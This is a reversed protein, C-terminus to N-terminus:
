AVLTSATTAEYKFSPPIQQKTKYYRALRHIRSEILILRFKSDKDKRNTELHKRVAVAKKVLQFLDEPIKPSLGQSKLIRLIKNGTVFRVQPIGHSDRLTVGIQSPTLGKRALKCIHEVVDDPTTKLWSPPARGYPLASSAIGKGPAHMRGM